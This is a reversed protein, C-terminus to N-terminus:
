KKEAGEDPDYVQNIPMAALRPYNLLVDRAAHIQDIAPGRFIAQWRLERESFNQIM